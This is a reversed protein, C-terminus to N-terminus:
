KNNNQIPYFTYQLYLKMNSFCFSFVQVTFPGLTKPKTFQPTFSVGLGFGVSCCVVLVWLRRGDYRRWWSGSCSIVNGAFYKAILNRNLYDSGSIMHYRHTKKWLSSSYLFASNSDRAPSKSPQLPAVM